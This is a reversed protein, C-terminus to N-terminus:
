SAPNLHDSECVSGELILLILSFYGPYLRSEYDEGGLCSSAGWIIPPETSSWLYLVKEYLAKKAAQEPPQGRESGEVPRIFPLVNQGKENGFKWTPVTRSGEMGLEVRTLVNCAGPVRLQRSSFTVIGGGLYATGAERITKGPMWFLGSGAATSLVMPHKPSAQIIAHADISKRWGPPSKACIKSQRPGHKRPYGCIGAAPEQSM